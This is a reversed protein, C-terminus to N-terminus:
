TSTESVFGSRRNYRQTALKWWDPLNATPTTWIIRHLANLSASDNLIRSKESLTLAPAGEAVLKDSIARIREQSEIPQKNRKPLFNLHLALVYPDLITQLLGFDSRLSEIPNLEIHAENGAAALGKIIENPEFEEPTQLFRHKKLWNAFDEHSSGVSLPITLAWGLLVPSMWYFLTPSIQWALVGWLIGVMTQGIHASWADLWTTNQLGRNQSNWTVRNGTLISFVFASHFLMLSPAILSFFVVEGIISLTARFFGGYSKRFKADLLLRVMTFVKPLLILALTSAFMLLGHTQINNPSLSLAPAREIMTLGSNQWSYAVLTSMGLFILWIPAALYAYIGNFMHIRSLFHIKGFFAIWSHQLNGQCWRRDRQAFEVLTQPLEEYSDPLNYALWVELGAKRMLAAEVFDHSLVRGGLPGSGPLEPLACHEIFPATRIIANHGWYNGNSQQWFNLGASAIEGHIRNAFQQFRAFLTEAGMLAPCTQIIGAQPNADMMHVLKSICEASMLSDADFCIIYNFNRGWRRCFDSVNGSKQNINSTRHRYVIKTQANLRDTLELWRKEEEIWRNSDTSDSLIFLTYNKLLGKQQLAKYTAEIGNFFRNPDENYVPFLLATTSESLVPTEGEDLDITRTIKFADSRFIVLLFGFFAQSFGFSLGTILVAYLALLIWKASSMGTRSLLDAFLATSVIVITAFFTFFIIRAAFRTFKM